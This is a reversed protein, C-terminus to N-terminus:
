AWKHAILGTASSKMDLTATQLCSHPQTSITAIRSRRALGARAAAAAPPQLAAYLAGSLRGAAGWM